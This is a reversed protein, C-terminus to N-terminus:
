TYTKNLIFWVIVTLVMLGVLLYLAVKSNVIGFPVPGIFGGVGVHVSSKEAVKPNGANLTSGAFIVIVGLFILFIGAPVLYEIM